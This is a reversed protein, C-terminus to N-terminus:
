AATRPWKGVGAIVRWYAEREYVASDDEPSQRWASPFSFYIDIFGHHIDSSPSNTRHLSGIHMM